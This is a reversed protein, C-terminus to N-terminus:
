AASREQLVSMSADCALMYRAHHGSYAGGHDVMETNIPIGMGRLEHIYASWRPAPQKIPICGKPGAERPQDLAWTDRGEAEITFLEGCETTVQYLWARKARGAAQAIDSSGAATAYRGDLGPQPQRRAPTEMQGGDM